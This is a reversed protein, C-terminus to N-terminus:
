RRVGSPIAQYEIRGDPEGREQLNPAHLQGSILQEQYSLAGCNSVIDSGGGSESSETTRTKGISGVGEITGQYIKIAECIKEATPVGGYFVPEDDILMAPLMAPGYREFKRMLKKIAEGSLASNAESITVIRIQAELKTKVLAERVKALYQQDEVRMAPNCCSISVISIRM